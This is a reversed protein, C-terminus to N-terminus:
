SIYESFDPLAVSPQPIYPEISIIKPKTPKSQEIKLETSEPQITKPQNSKLLKNPSLLPSTPRPPNIGLNVTPTVPTPPASTTKELPKTKNNERQLTRPDGEIYPKIFTKKIM